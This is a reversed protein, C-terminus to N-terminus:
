SCGMMDVRRERRERAARVVADLEAGELVMDLSRLPAPPIGGEGETVTEREGDFGGSSALFDIRRVTLIGALLSRSTVLPGSFRLM